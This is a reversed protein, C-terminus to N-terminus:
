DNELFMACRKQEYITENKMCEFTFNSDDGYCQKLGKELTKCDNYRDIENSMVAHGIFFVIGFFAIFFYAFIVWYDKFVDKDIMIGCM